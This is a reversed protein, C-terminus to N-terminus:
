LQEVEKSSEVLEDFVKILKRAWTTGVQDTTSLLALGAKAKKKQDSNTTKKIIEAAKTIRQEIDSDISTM